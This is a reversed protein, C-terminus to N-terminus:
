RDYLGWFNIESSQNVVIQFAPKSVCACVRARAGLGQVMDYPPFLLLLLVLACPGCGYLLFPKRRGWKRSVTLDTLCSMVPSFIVDLGRTLTIFYALVPLYAGQREYYDLSFLQLFLTIPTITLCVSAFAHMGCCGIGEGLASVGGKAQRRDALRGDGKHADPLRPGGRVDFPAEDNSESTESNARAPGLVNQSRFRSIGAGNM